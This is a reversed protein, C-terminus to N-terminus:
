LGSAKAIALVLAIGAGIAMGSVINGCLVGIFKAVGSPKDYGSRIGDILSDFTNMGMIYAAYDFM